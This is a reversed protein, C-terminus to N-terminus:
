FVEAGGFHSRGIALLVCGRSSMPNVQSDHVAGDLSTGVIHDLQHPGDGLRM